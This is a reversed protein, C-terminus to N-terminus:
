TRWDVESLYYAIMNNFLAFLLLHLMNDYCSSVAFIFWELHFLVVTQISLENWSVM